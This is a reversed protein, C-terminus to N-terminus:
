AHDVLFADANRLVRDLGVFPELHRGVQTMLFRDLVQLTQRDRRWRLFFAGRFGPSGRRERRERLSM